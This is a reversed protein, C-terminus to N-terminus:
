TAHGFYWASVKGLQARTSVIQDRTASNPNVDFLAFPPAISQLPLPELPQATSCGLLAALCAALAYVSRRPHRGRHEHSM